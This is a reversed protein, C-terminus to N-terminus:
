RRADDHRRQMRVGADNRNDVGSGAGGNKGGWASLVGVSPKREGLNLTAGGCPLFCLGDQGPIPQSGPYNTCKGSCQLATRPSSAQLLRTKLESPVAAPFKAKLLALAAAVHPAAMSTGNEYSYYCQEVECADAQGSRLLQDLLTTSLIGDPRGDGDDDRTMDGGPAMITVGPGRLQLLAGARRARRGGGGFHRQRLRGARCVQHRRPFQGGGVVVIAGAAVADNIAAQMSAPCPEFLGISLNIIDAPNENWVEDGQGDRAPVKGAAWRIADNIDSLKGGCRGLARVPVM